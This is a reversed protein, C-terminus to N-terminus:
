KELITAYVCDEISAFERRKKKKARDTDDSPHLADM